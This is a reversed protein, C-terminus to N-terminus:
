LIYARYNASKVILNMRLFLTRDFTTTNITVFHKHKLKFVFIPEIRLSFHDEIFKISTQRHSSTYITPRTETMLHCDAILQFIIDNLQFNTRHLFSVLMSKDTQNIIFFCNLLNAGKGRLNLGLSRYDGLLVLVRTVNLMGASIRARLM